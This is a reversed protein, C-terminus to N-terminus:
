IFTEEIWFWKNIIAGRDANNISVSLVNEMIIGTVTELSLNNVPTLFAKKNGVEVGVVYLYGNTERRRNYKQNFFSEGIEIIKSDGGEDYEVIQVNNCIIFQGINRKIVEWHCCVYYTIDQISTECTNKYMINMVKQM